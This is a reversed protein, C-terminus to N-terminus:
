KKTQTIRSPNHLINVKLPTSSINVKQVTKAVKRYTKLVPVLHALINLIFMM